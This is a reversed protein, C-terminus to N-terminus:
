SPRRRLVRYLGVRYEEEFHADVYHFLDPLARRLNSSAFDDKDVVIADRAEELRALLREAGVRERYHEPLLDWGFLHLTYVADAFLDPRPSLFHILYENTLLVLPAGPPAARELHDLLWAFAAIGEAEYFGRSPAVGRAGAVRLAEPASWAGPARALADLAPPAGLGLPLLAVLAFAARRRAPRPPSDASAVGSWRWCLFALLPTLTGLLLTGNFTARPFIQFAMALQLFLAAVLLEPAPGPAASGRRLLDAALLALAAAGIAAPLSNQLLGVLVGVEVLDPVSALPWALLAAGAFLLAAGRARAGRLLLLGGSVAAVLGAALALSRPPPLEVPLAYNQLHSPFVFMQYALAGLAGWGAYLGAVAAPFVAVGLGFPLARPLAYGLAERASGRRAFRLAVLALLVHFPLFHLAYDLAHLQGLFPLVLLAGTAGFLALLASKGRGGRDQPPAERLLGAAVIALGLFATIVCGLSQKFLIGAGAALGAALFSGRADRELGRLLWFLALLGLPITYSAAYPSNLNWIVKGWFAIALGGALLAFRRPALRSAILFALAVQAARLAALSFRVPLIEPGFLRFLPVNVAFVGPGYLSTFDRHPVEGRAVRAINDYLYGEDRLDLTCPLTACFFAFAAAALLAAVAADSLARRRRPGTLSDPEIV